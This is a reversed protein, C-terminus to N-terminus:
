KNLMVYSIIVTYTFVRNKLSILIESNYHIYYITRLILVNERTCSASSLLISISNSISSISSSSRSIIIYINSIIGIMVVGVLARGEQISNMADADFGALLTPVVVTINVHILNAHM